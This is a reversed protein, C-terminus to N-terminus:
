SRPSPRGRFFLSAAQQWLFDKVSKGCALIEMPRGNV